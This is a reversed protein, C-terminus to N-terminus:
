DAFVEPSFMEWLARYYPAYLKLQDPELLVQVEKGLLQVLQRVLEWRVNLVPYLMVCLPFLEQQLAQINNELICVWLYVQFMEVDRISSVRVASDRLLGTYCRHNPYLELTRDVIRHAIASSNPLLRQVTQLAVSDPTHNAAAGYARRLPMYLHDDIVKFYSQVVTRDEPALLELLMQGTYHFQMSIFGIVRPDDSTYKTRIQGLSGSIQASFRQPTVRKAYSTFAQDYIQHADKAIDWPDILEFDIQHRAVEQFLLAETKSWAQASVTRLAKKLFRAAAQRSRWEDEDPRLPDAGSLNELYRKAWLRSFSAIESSESTEPVSSFLSETLPRTMM